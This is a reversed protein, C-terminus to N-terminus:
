SSKAVQLLYLTSTFSMDSFIILCVIHFTNEWVTPASKHTKIKVKTHYKTHKTSKVTNKHMKHTRRHINTSSQQRKAYYLIIIFKVFPFSSRRNYRLILICNISPYDNHAGETVYNNKNMCNVAIFDFWFCCLSLLCYLQPAVLGYFPV